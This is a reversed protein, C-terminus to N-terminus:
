KTFTGFLIDSIIRFGGSLRQGYEHYIVTIPIERVRLGAQFAARQIESCHAMRDQQWQLREAATRTFARFGAQPDSLRIGLLRNFLRGLPMIVYRKVPPLNARAGALFRSGFVIDAEGQELVAVARSIDAAVFQGDADFHVLYEAGRELAYCTGTRLAAGQGRNVVHRLATAGAARAVDYTRDRSCDDVVVVLADAHQRKLEHVVNGVRQEENYAPIIIALMNM